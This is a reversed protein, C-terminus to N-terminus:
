RNSTKVSKSFSFGGRTEPLHKGRTARGLRPADARRGYSAVDGGSPEIEHRDGPRPRGANASTGYGKRTRELQPIDLPEFLVRRPGPKHDGGVNPLAALWYRQEDRLLRTKPRLDSFQFCLVICHIMQSPPRHLVSSVGHHRTFQLVCSCRCKSRMNRFHARRTEMDPEPDTLCGDSQTQACDADPERKNGFPAESYVM